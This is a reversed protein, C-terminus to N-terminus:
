LFLGLEQLTKRLEFSLDQGAPALRIEKAVAVDECGEGVGGVLRIRARGCLGGPSRVPGFGADLGYGPYSADVEEQDEGGSRREGSRVLEGTSRPSRSRLRVRRTHSPRRRTRAM